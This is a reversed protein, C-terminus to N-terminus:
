TCCLDAVCAAAGASSREDPVAARATCFCTEAWAGAAGGSACTRMNVSNCILILQTGIGSAQLGFLIGLTSPRYGM